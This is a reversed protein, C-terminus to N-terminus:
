FSEHKLLRRLSAVGERVNHKVHTLESRFSETSLTNIVPNFIANLPFIVLALMAEISPMLYVNMVALLSIISMTIWALFNTLVVLGLRLVIQKQSYHARMSNRSLIVHAIHIHIVMLALFVILNLVFYILFYYKSLSQGVLICATNILGEMTFLSSLGPLTISICWAILIFLVATRVKIGVTQFPHLVISFYRDIAILLTAITSAELSVFLLCSLAICLPSQKWELAIYIINGRYTLDTVNLILLYLAMASDAINLNFAFIHKTQVNHRSQSCWSIFSMFNLVIILILYIWTVYRLEKHALVDLCSGIDDTSQIDSWCEGRTVLCCAEPNVVYVKTLHKLDDLITVNLWSSIKFLNQSLVLVEINDLDSLSNLTESTILYNSSLNLFTMEQQYLFTGSKIHKLSIASLDAAHLCIPAYKM